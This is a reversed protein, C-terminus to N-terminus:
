TLMKAVGILGVVTLILGWISFVAVTIGREAYHGQGLNEGHGTQGTALNWRGPHRREYALSREWAEHRGTAWCYANFLVVLGALLFLALSGNGTADRLLFGPLILLSAIM